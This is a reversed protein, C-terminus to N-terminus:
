TKRPRTINVRHREPLIGKTAYEMAEDETLDDLPDQAGPQEFGQLLTGQLRVLKDLGNVLANPGLRSPDLSATAAQYKDILAQVIQLNAARAKALTLGEEKMIEAQASCWLDHIAPLGRPKDGSRIYHRATAEAVGCAKAVYGVTQREHYARLMLYFTDM